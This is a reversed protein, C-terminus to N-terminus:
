EHPFVAQIYEFFRSAYSYKRDTTGIGRTVSAGLTYAQSCTRHSQLFPLSSPLPSAVFHRPLCLM